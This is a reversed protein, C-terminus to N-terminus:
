MGRLLNEMRWVLTLLTLLFLTGAVFGCFAFTELLVRDCSKWLRDDCM